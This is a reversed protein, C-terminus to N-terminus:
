HKEIDLERKTAWLLRVLEYEFPSGTEYYQFSTTSRTNPVLLGWYVVQHSPHEDFQLPDIATFAVADVGRGVADRAFSPGFLPLMLYPGTGVGYRGLTQGFDEFHQPIGLPTAVDFLGAIGVTTNVLFRGTTQVASTPRWQLVENIVTQINDLNVFFNNVGTRVFGPFVFRYASVIPNLVWRDAYSNFRYISRNMGEWPDKIELPADVDDIMMVNREYYPRDPPQGSSKSPATSCGAAILASLLLAFHYKM